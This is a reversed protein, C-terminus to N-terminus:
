DSYLMIQTTLDCASVPVVIDADRDIREPEFGHQEYWRINLYMQLKDLLSTRYSTGTKTFNRSFEQRHGQRDEYSGCSLYDFTSASSMSVDYGSNKIYGDLYTHLVEIGDRYKAILEIDKTIINIVASAIEKNSMEEAFDFIKQQYPNLANWGDVHVDNITCEIGRVLCVKVARLIKSGIFFSNIINIHGVKDSFAGKYLINYIEDTNKLQVRKETEAYREDFNVVLLKKDM